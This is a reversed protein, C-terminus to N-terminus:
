RKDQELPEWVLADTTLADTWGGKRAEQSTGMKRRLSTEDSLSDDSDTLVMFKACTVILTTSLRIKTPQFVFPRYCNVIARMRGKKYLNRRGGEVQRVRCRIMGNLVNYTLVKFKACNM